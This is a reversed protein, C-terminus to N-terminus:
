NVRLIHTLVSEMKFKTACLHGCTSSFVRRVHVWRIERIRQSKPFTQKIYEVAILDIKYGNIYAIAINHFYQYCYSKRHFDFFFGFSQSLYSYYNVGENSFIQPAMVTYIVNVFPRAPKVVAGGMYREYHWKKFWPWTQIGKGNAM